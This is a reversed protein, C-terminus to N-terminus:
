PTEGRIDFEPLMSPTDQFINGMALIDHPDLTRKVSRMAQIVAPPYMYALFDRRTKGIGHEGAVTGGLEVAKRCWVHALKKLRAVEAGDRGRMFIHPHSNGIHGYRVLLDVGAEVATRDVWEMMQVMAGPPVCFETSIKLGGASHCAAALKNCTEPIHHRLERLWAIEAGTEGIVAEDLMAGLRELPALDQEVRQELTRDGVDFELYLMAGARTPVPAPKSHTALLNLAERDFLEVCRPALSQLGGCRLSSAAALAEQLSPFFLLVGWFPGPHPLLRVWARTIIGLTGESGVFLSVPDQFPSYGATNKDVDRRFFTHLEGNGTVVEVGAVWRSTMGWRFTRAGSANSAINGGVTCERESTPDPPFYLGEAEVARKLDATVTGPLVEALRRDRDIAEVGAMRTMSLVVDGQPVAAGTTATQLGVPLVRRGACASDRVFEVVDATSRVRVLGAPTGVLGSHDSAVSVLIDPDTLIM